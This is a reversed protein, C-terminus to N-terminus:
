GGEHADSCWIGGLENTDQRSAISDQDKGRKKSIAILVAKANKAGTKRSPTTKVM